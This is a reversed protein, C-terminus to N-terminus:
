STFVAPEHEPCDLRLQADSFDADVFRCHHPLEPSPPQAPRYFCCTVCTRSVPIARHQQLVRVMAVTGRLMGAVDEPTLADLAARLPPPIVALRAAEVRGSDTLALSVTRADVLDRTRELLGKAVLARVADSITPATSALATVLDGQRRSLPNGALHRIIDAQLPSIRASGASDWAGSRLAQGLRGLGILLQEQPTLGPMESVSAGEGLQCPAFGQQCQWVMICNASGVYNVNTLM